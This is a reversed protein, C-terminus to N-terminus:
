DQLNQEDQGPKASRLVDVPNVFDVLNLCRLFLTLVEAKSHLFSALILVFSSSFNVADIRYIRNMRDVNQDPGRQDNPQHVDVRLAKIFRLV